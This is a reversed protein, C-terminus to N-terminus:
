DSKENCNGAAQETFIRGGRTKEKYCIRLVKWREQGRVSEKKMFGNGDFSEQFGEVLRRRIPSREMPRM